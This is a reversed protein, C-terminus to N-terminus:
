DGRKQYRHLRRVFALYRLSLWAFLTAILAGIIGGLVVQSPYHVGLYIRSIGVLAAIALLPLWLRRFWPLIQGFFLATLVFNLTHNSPTGSTLAGCSGGQPRKPQRILDFIEACPRPQSFWHKLLNGLLDGAILALIFLGWLKIGDKGFRRWLVALILLILPAAFTARDSIWIFFRDAWPHAWGQNIALLIPRDLGLGLPLWGLLTFSILLAAILGAGIWVPHHNIPKSM